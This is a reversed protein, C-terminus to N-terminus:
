ILDESQEEKRLAAVTAANGERAKWVDIVAADAPAQTVEPQKLARELRAIERALYWQAKKLDELTEGKSGARWVYKVVYGLCFNMHETIDICEIGPIKSAYYNPNIPDMNIELRNNSVTM